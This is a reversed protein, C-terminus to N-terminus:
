LCINVRSIMVQVSSYRSDFSSRYKLTTGIVRCLPTTHDRKKGKGNSGGGGSEKILEFIGCFTITLSQPPPLSFRPPSPTPLHQMAHNKKIRRTRINETVQHKQGIEFHKIPKCITNLCTRCQNKFATLSLM